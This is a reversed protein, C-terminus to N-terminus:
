VGRRSIGFISQLTRDHTGRSLNENVVDGIIIKIEANGMADQTEQVRAQEGSNNEVIVNTIAATSQVGLQGGPGRKLPLIAEPGAEGMVGLQGGGFTFPTASNVVGGNAFAMVGNSNFANGNASALFDFFSGGIAGGIQGVAEAIAKQAAIRALDRIISNAFDSFSAKGTTIFDVLSDEAGRFAGGLVREIQEADNTASDVYDKFARKAGDSADRSARLLKEELKASDEGLTRLDERRGALMKKRRKENEKEQKRRAKDGRDQIKQKEIRTELDILKQLEINTTGLVRALNAYKAAVQDGINKSEEANLAAIKDRVKQLANAVEKTPEAVDDHSKRLKEMNQLHTILEPVDYAERLEKGRDALVKASIAAANYGPILKLVADLSKNVAIDVADADVFGKVANAADRISSAYDSAGRAADGFTQANNDLNNSLSIITEALSTSLSSADDFKGIANVLSNGLVTSAQAVTPAFASFEKNIKPLQKEFADLFVDATLEGAFALERLQGVNVGLSDSLAKIVRVGQESVSRFEEGRLQGSALGQALQIVANNAEQATAGSVIFAQQLGQTVNLLRENSVGLSETSIALRQYLNVTSEFGSRTQQSVAFLKEQVDILEFTSQTVNTLRNEIITYTDAARILEAVGFSAVVASAASSLRSMAGDLSSTSKTLKNTQRETRQAEKELRSLQSVARKVDDANVEVFLTAVSDAM